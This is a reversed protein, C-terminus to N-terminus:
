LLAAISLPWGRPKAAGLPRLYAEVRAVVAARDAEDAIGNGALSADVPERYPAVTSWGGCAGTGGLALAGFLSLVLYFPRKRQANPMVSQRGVQRAAQRAARAPYCPPAAAAARPPPFGQDM